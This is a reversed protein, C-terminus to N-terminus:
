VPRNLGRIQASLRIVALHSARNDKLFMIIYFNLLSSSNMSSLNFLIINTFSLMVVLVLTM